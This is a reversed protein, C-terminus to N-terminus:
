KRPPILRFLCILIFLIVVFIIIIDNNIKLQLQSSTTYSTVMYDLLNTQKEILKIININDRELELFKDYLDSYMLDNFSCVSSCDM